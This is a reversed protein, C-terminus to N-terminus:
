DYKGDKDKIFTKVTFKCIWGQKVPDLPGSPEEAGNHIDYTGPPFFLAILLFVSQSVSTQGGARPIIRHGM